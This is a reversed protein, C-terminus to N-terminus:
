VQNRHIHTLLVGACYTAISVKKKGQRARILEKLKNYEERPIPIEMLITASGRGNEEAELSASIEERVIELFRQRQKPSPFTTDALDAASGSRGAKIMQSARHVLQHCTACLWVLNSSSDTGGAHRPNRHHVHCGARPYVKGEVFCSVQLSASLDDMTM